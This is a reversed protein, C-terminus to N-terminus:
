VTNVGFVKYHVCRYRYEGGNFRDDLNNCKDFIRRMAYRCDDSNM